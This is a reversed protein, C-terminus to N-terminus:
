NGAPFLTLLVRSEVLKSIIPGSFTSEVVFDGSKSRWSWLYIICIGKTM